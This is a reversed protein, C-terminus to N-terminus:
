KGAAQATSRGTKAAKAKAAVEARRQAALEEEDLYRFTKATAEMQLGGDKLVTLVIDNLTVIRSLRSIDSAFLGLQHYPGRVKLAIPLEAYFDKRNEAVAPKFLEFALGRTVGAQNIDTILSEMKSRDPLQKLLAGFSQDVEALQRKYLELNMAQSYKGVYEEKLKQEKQQGQKLLEMQPQIDLFYGGVMVAIAAAGMCVVKPILPWTGPDDLKLGKFQSALDQKNM